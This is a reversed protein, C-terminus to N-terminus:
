GLDLIDKTAKEELRAQEQLALQETHDEVRDAVEGVVRILRPIVGDAEDVFLHLWPRILLFALVLVGVAGLGAGVVLGILLNNV